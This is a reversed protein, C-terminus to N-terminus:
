ETLGLQRDLGMVQIIRRVIPTPNRIEVIADGNAIQLLMAIGSSDMFTLQALDFVVREPEEKLLSDVAERVREVSAIDLEGIISITALGPTETSGVVKPFIGGDLEAV